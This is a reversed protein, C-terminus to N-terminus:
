PSLEKLERLTFRLFETCFRKSTDSAWDPPLRGVPALIADEEVSKLRELWPAFAEPRDQSALRLLDLPTESLPRDPSWFIRGRGRRKSGRVYWEMKSEEGSVEKNKAYINHLTLGGTEHNGGAARM